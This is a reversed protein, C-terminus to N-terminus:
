FKWHITIPPLDNRKKTEDRGIEIYDILTDVMFRNLETVNKYKELLQKRNIQNKKRNDIKELQLEMDHILNEKQINEEEFMEKLYMFDKETVTGKVKDIYLNKIADKNILIRNQLNKIEGM